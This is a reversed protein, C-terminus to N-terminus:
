KNLLERIKAKTEEFTVVDEDVIMGEERAKAFIERWQERTPRDGCGIIGHKQGLLHLANGTCSHRWCRWTLGSKDIMFNSGTSSDHFPHAIRRGERLGSVVDHVSVQLREGPYTQPRNPEFHASPEPRLFDFINETEIENLKSRGEFVNGTMTFYRGETYIELGAGSPMDIRHPLWGPSAGFGIIHLGQGSPSIETYSDSDHVISRAWMCLVTDLLVHDLDIGLLGDDKTFVFGLHDFEKVNDYTTWTSADTTSAPKGNVTIPIKTTKGNVTRPEWRLWRPLAVLEQPLDSKYRL